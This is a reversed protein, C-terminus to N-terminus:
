WALAREVRLTWILFDSDLLVDALVGNAAILTGAM